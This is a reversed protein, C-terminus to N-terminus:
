AYMAKYASGATYIDNATWKWTIMDPDATLQASQIRRWLEVYEVVADTSMSGHIDCIWLNNHLANSVLRM